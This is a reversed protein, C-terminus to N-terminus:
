LLAAPSFENNRRMLCNQAEGISSSRTNTYVSVAQCLFPNRLDTIRLVHTAKQKQFRIEFVDQLANRPM